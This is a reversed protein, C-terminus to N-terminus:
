IHSCQFIYLSIRIFCSSTGSCLKAHCGIQVWCVGTFHLISIMKHQWWCQCHDVSRDEHFCTQLHTLLVGCNLWCEQLLSTRIYPPLVSINMFSCKGGAWHQHSFICNEFTNKWFLQSLNLWSMHLVYSPFHQPCKLNILFWNWLLQTFSFCCSFWAM